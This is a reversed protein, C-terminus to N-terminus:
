LEHHQQEALDDLGFKILRPHHDPFAALLDANDIHRHTISGQRAVTKIKVPKSMKAKIM